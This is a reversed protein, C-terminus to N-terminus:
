RTIGAPPDIRTSSRSSTFSRARDRIVSTSPDSMYLRHGNFVTTSTARTPRVLPQCRARASACNVMSCSPRPQNVLHRRPVRRTSARPIGVGCHEAHYSLMSATAPGGPQGFAPLLGSRHRCGPSCGPRFRVASTASRNDRDSARPV